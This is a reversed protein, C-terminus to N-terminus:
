TVSVVAPGTAAMTGAVNMVVYWVDLGNAPGPTMTITMDENGDISAGSGNEIMAGTADDFIFWLLGTQNAGGTIGTVTISTVSPADTTFQASTSVTSDNAAADQHQYHFHYSTTNTLGTASVNQVGTASVAQNGSAAAASGTNDQGAQIQAVSPATASTTAVWYLTGNAEDTSVSGDATTEGTSTGTPSSLTPEQTDGPGTSTPAADGDTGVGFFEFDTSLTGTGGVDSFVGVLGTTYTANTGTIDPTDANTKETQGDEWFWASITTGDCRIRAWVKNNGNVAYGAATDGIGTGSGAQL